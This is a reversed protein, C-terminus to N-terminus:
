PKYELLCAPGGWEQTCRRAGGLLLGCGPIAIAIRAVPLPGAPIPGLVGIPGLAAVLGVIPLWGAATAVPGLAVIPLM